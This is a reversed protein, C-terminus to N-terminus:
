PASQTAAQAADTRIGLVRRLYDVTKSQRFYITHHVHDSADFCCLDDPALDPAFGYQTMSATDVVLDNKGTFVLRDVAADALRTKWDCFVKWFKLGIDKPEYDGTVGFYTPPNMPRLEMAKLEFNNAIRSQAALGPIMAVGADVLPVKSALNGLSFVIRVLSGAASLFPVLSVTEALKSGINTMLNLGNRLRDPAALSTGGLPSGVFVARKKRDPKVDFVELFWRTVLGGRSHCIVDIEADSQAFKRALELANLMPSQSVTPHDFTLVQNYCRVADTLLKAGGEGDVKLFEALLNDNNSFTGHVFLLIRGSKAPEPCPQLSGNLYQRLGMNKNFSADFEELKSVVQSFGLREYKVTVLPVGSIFSGGRRSRRAGPPTSRTVAGEEWLLVGNDDILTALGIGDDPPAVRNRRLTSIPMEGGITEELPVLGFARLDSHLRSILEEPKQNIEPIM